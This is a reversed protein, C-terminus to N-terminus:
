ENSNAETVQTIKGSPTSDFRLGYLEELNNFYAKELGAKFWGSGFATISGISQM